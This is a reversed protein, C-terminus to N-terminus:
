SNRGEAKAVIARASLLWASIIADGEANAVEVRAIAARLCDLMEPASAILRANAEIERPATILHKAEAIQGNLDRGGVDMIPGYGKADTIVYWYDLSLKHTRFVRWPGPTHEM